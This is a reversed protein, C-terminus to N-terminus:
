FSKGASNYRRCPSFWVLSACFSGSSIYDMMLILCASRPVNEPDSKSATRAHLVAGQTASVSM